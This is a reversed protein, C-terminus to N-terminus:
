AWGANTASESGDAMTLRHAYSRLVGPVKRMDVFSQSIVCVNARCDLMARIGFEQSGDCSRKMDIFLLIGIVPPPPLKDTKM